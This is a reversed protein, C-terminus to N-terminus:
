ELYEDLDVYSLIGKFENESPCEFTEQDAFVILSDDIYVHAYM